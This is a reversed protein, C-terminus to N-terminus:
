LILMCLIFSSVCTESAVKLSGGNHQVHASVTVGLFETICECNEGRGIFSGWSVLDDFCTRYLAIREM